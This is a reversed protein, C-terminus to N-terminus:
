VIVMSFLSTRLSPTFDHKLPLPFFSNPLKIGVMEKNQSNILLPILANTCMVHPPPVIQLSQRRRAVVLELELDNLHLWQLDCHLVFTFLFPTTTKSFIIFQHIQFLFITKSPHIQTLLASILKFNLSFHKLSPFTLKSLSNSSFFSQHSKFNLFKKSCSTKNNM